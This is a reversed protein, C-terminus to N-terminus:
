HAASFERIADFMALLNPVPTNPQINHITNFVFGGGPAFVELRELVEARVEEPTGFPLTRQTDVGGGWFTVRDGFDSKLGRAEMGDASCQVPNLIDFGAEIFDDLLPRIGGCSHIFTRWGTNAHIWDNVARHFPKFLDRYSEVSAFPGRQTGFDTGTVMAVQVTDGVVAAIRELNRLAIECQKAFVTKVYDRRAATSIYWEEVDRIGKPHKLFPAPVLAIDGFGTGGFNAVVARDSADLDAALGRYRALEDDTIPQFEELNDEPDLRADDIPEQRIISDFYFGGAPMRGSAPASHDGGPYQLLDGNPEPETNFGGPVLVPTGDPMDWPKWDEVPYGFLTDRGGIGVTDIGLVERLDDTVEGLMQYPEIVRVRDGPQDLGLALRLKSLTSVSIGSVPTAGIDLPVRDPERHDIAALVRERSTM